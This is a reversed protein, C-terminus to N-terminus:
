RVEVPDAFDCGGIGIGIRPVTIISGYAVVYTGCSITPSTPLTTVTATPATSIAVVNLSPQSPPSTPDSCAALVLAAGAIPALRLMLM